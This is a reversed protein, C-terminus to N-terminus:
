YGSAPAATFSVIGPQATIIMENTYVSTVVSTTGMFSSADGILSIIGGGGEPTNGMGGDARLVGVGSIVAAEILIAGGAGCGSPETVVGPHAGIEGSMDITGNIVAPGLVDAGPDYVIVV